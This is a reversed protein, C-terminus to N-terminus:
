YLRDFTYGLKKLRKVVEDLRNYLKDTRENVVGPHILIIAGSLGDSKEFSFLKDILEQSSKYSKMSPETYDAPTATGPTYNISKLGMRAAVYVSEKNYHEYPPLFWSAASPEIGFKALEAFNNRLDHAISDQTL